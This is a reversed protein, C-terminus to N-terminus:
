LAGEIVPWVAYAGLFAGCLFGITGLSVYGFFRDEALGDLYAERLGWAAGIFACILITETM